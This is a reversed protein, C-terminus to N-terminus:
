VYRKFTLFSFLIYWSFQNNRIVVVNEISKESGWLQLLNFTYSDYNDIILTRLSSIDEFEFPTNHIPSLQIGQEEDNLNSM